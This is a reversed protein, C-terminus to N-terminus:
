EDQDDGGDEPIRVYFISGGDPNDEVWIRGKHLEVIRKAIALGLGTGKIATKGAREFREFIKEKDEDSVGEGCDRVSILWHGEDDGMNIEISTKKNGYKIANSILNSFVERIMKNVFALCERDPEFIITMDKGRLDFVFNEITDKLLAALDITKKDLEHLYEIKSYMSANEIMEICQTSNDRIMGVIERKELSTEEDYLIEAANRIVGAPNLLDHRMVDTFLDKIRNSEELDNAYKKLAEENRKRTSIDRISAVFLKEERKSEGTEEIRLEIPFVTGDKRLGELEIRSGLVKAAGSELFHKMGEGHAKRYQEPMLVEVDQGVLEKELYGFTLCLESNVISITSDATSVIIGEGAATLISRIRDETKMREAVERSLEDRSTTTERLDRTMTNLSLALRGLEDKSRVDMHENFNGAGVKRAFNEMRIIPLSLRKGIFISVLGMIFVILLGVSMDRRLEERLPLLAESLDQSLIVYWLEGKNGRIHGISAHKGGFGYEASGSTIPVPAYAYLLAGKGDEILISGAGRKNMVEVLHVPMRTSLIEKDKERVIMGGSRAVKLDGTEGLKFGEVTNLLLADMNVNCKLIGIIEGDKMVPVTIGLVYGEVSADFGRDDIFMRGKGEAFAAAWWYKHAHALTTLKGTTAIITGYRNTLFIEGYKGRNREMQEKFFLAVPNTMYSSIFPDSAGATKMWRDNLRNIEKERDDDAMNEFTSNSRSLAEEIVPATSLAQVVNAKDIINIEVHEARERANELLHDNLEMIHHSRNYLYSISEVGVLFISGFGFIMLAIKYQLKM